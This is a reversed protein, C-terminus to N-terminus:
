FQSAGSTSSNRKRSKLPSTCKIASSLACSISIAAAGVSTIWLTNDDPAARAVEQAGIAGNAGAKNDIVVTTQLEKGLQEGLARAVFDVPGGPPFSVIIHLPKNQATAALPAALLLGLLARRPLTDIM